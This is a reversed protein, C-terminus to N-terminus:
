LDIENSFTKNTATGLCYNHRDTEGETQRNMWRNTQTDIDIDIEKQM